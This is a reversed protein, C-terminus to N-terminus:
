TILLFLKNTALAITFSRVEAEGLFDKQTYGRIELDKNAIAITEDMITYALQRLGPDTVIKDVTIGNMAVSIGNFPLNWLNKSWRARVYNPDYVFDFGQTPEWLEEMLTQHRQIENVDASSSKALSVTLKGAYSHDIHGPAIRNSCLLAMGAFVGACKTLKPDVDENEEGELFRIIDEDVMGNMICLVRTDESLLPLLLDRTSGIGTSKLAMIVWDVTGIDETKDYVLLEDPPIFIDGNVSTVNLGNEKSVNYHDGRMHFIVKYKRTEWLRAGYYCGVAGSGIVAISPKERNKTMFMPSKSIDRRLSKNPFTFVPNTRVVFGITIPLFLYLIHM